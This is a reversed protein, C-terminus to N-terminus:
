FGWRRQGNKDEEIAYVDIVTGPKLAKPGTGVAGTAGSGFARTRSTGPYPGFRQKQTDRTGQGLEGAIQVGPRSTVNTLVDERGAGERGAGSVSGPSPTPPTDIPTAQPSPFVRGQGDSGVPGDVGYSIGRTLAGLLGRGVNAAGQGATSTLGRGPLANIAPGRTVGYDGIQRWDSKVGQSMTTQENLNWWGKGTGGFGYHTSRRAMEWQAHNLPAAHTINANMTDREWDPNTYVTQTKPTNDGRIIKKAEHAGIRGAWKQGAESAAFQAARSGAVRGIVRQGVDSAVARSAVRGAASGAARAAGFEFLRPAAHEAAERAAFSWM